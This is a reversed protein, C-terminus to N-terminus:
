AEGSELALRARLGEVYAAVTEADPHGIERLYDVRVQMMETARGIEGMKELVLGLNWGASGEGIRDGIERTMALYQEYLEIARRTEGLDAYAIGLNGTANGEGRRDGIERTIALQQEYREIARRTEGLRWYAIGLNGTANGEGRRDGIERTIALQQEYLEIARRTEGLRWYASGLEGTANGEGRRDGIENAIAFSQEHYEIARRNEGLDAYALGLSGLTLGEGRRDGIERTIALSQENYEIARRTEGLAAYANGLNGLTQGEGRRDGIERAITLDQEHYEIARRTEGLAAYANGLNCLTQGEGRRDGIERAITLDQEHYEIARRTEGLDAYANGLNCLTQGEGHRDGIERVIALAQEYLEIARRTEGLDAYALGLNGLAYGEWSRNGLQRAATLAIDLWGIRQTPHLRLDLYYKGADPYKWTLEAAAQDGAIHDAAWAQGARVNTWELDFLRLGRLLDPGGRLYLANAEALVARYHSAHRRHAQTREEDSCRSDAFVRALDHLRYRGDDGDVLSRRVLDGLTAEAPELELAWVAATAPADFTAPFVALTRFHCATEEPLLDYSLSLSAEILGLRAKGSALREAYTAPTLDPREALTGAAQRLALPVGACIGALRAAQDGIRPAIRLLLARAEEPPMEDLDHVQLGPLHFFFRSTVLLLCGEPPILPRIQEAGAANDMLLLARQGHLASRYLAGSEAESEPLRTDPHFARIVHAMAQAPTVPQTSVGQLDLYLQADPYQHALEHALKLALATKGIGGMGRLGSITVGGTAAAARLEALVATRGTFDAPPPPLQHLPSLANHFAGEESRARIVWPRQKYERLTAAGWGETDARGHCNACLCLLNAASHDKSQSWAIIHARELPLECGCVVCRHGADILVQREVDAPIAPRNQPM